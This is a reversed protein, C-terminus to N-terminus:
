LRFRNGCELATKQHSAAIWVIFEIGLPIILYERRKRKKQVPAIV